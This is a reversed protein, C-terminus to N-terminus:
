NNIAIIRFANGDQAFWVKGEESMAGKDNRFIQSFNIRAISLRAEKSFIVNYNKIFDEETKVTKQIPYRVLKALQEKDNNMVLLQVKKLFLKFGKVDTFGANEWSSPKSGDSFVSDDTMEEQTLGTGLISDKLTNGTDNRPAPTDALVPTSDIKPAAAATASTEGPATNNNCAFLLSLAVIPLLIKKM